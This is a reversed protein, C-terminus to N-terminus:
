NLDVVHVIVSLLLTLIPVAARFRHIYVAHQQALAGGCSRAFASRLCRHTAQSSIVGGYWVVVSGGDCETFIDCSQVTM